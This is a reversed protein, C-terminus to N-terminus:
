GQRIDSRRRQWTRYCVGSRDFSSIFSQVPRYEQEGLSTRLGRGAFVLELDPEPLPSDSEICDGAAEDTNSTDSWKVEQHENPQDNMWIRRVAAADVIEILHDNPLRIVGQWRLLRLLRDLRQIEIGMDTALWHRSMIAGDLRSEGRIRIFATAFKSVESTTATLM